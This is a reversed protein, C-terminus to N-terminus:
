FSKNLQSSLLIFHIKYLLIQKFRKIAENIELNEFITLKQRIECQLLYNLFIKFMYERENDLRIRYIKYDRSELFVKFRLFMVFTKNKHRICYVKSYFIFNNKFIIFYKYNNFKTSSLSKVLDSYVFENSQTESETLSDYSITKQYKIIYCECIYEKAINKIFNM